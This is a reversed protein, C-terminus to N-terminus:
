RFMEKIKLLRTRDAREVEDLKMTIFKITEELQPILVYELANVRRRTKEIELSLLEVTKEFEALNILSFLAERFQNVAEDLIAPTTSLSYSFLNGEISGEFQPIEINMLTKKSVKIEAQVQPFFLAEKIIAPSAELEALTLSFYAKKLNSEARERSIKLEQIFKLFRRMLEDFKDKLLKHGRKAVGNRKRLKLLEMRNPNVRLVM